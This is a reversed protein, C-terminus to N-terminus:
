FRFEAGLTVMVDEIDITDDAFYQETKSLKFDDNNKVPYPLM